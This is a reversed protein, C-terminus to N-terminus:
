NTHVWTDRSTLGRGGESDLDAFWAWSQYSVTLSLPFTKKKNNEKDFLHCSNSLFLLPPTNNNIQIRNVLHITQM